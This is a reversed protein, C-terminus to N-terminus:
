PLYHNITGNPYDTCSSWNKMDCSFCLSSGTVCRMRGCVAKDLNRSYTFLHFDSDFYESSASGKLCNTLASTATKQGGPFVLTGTEKLPINYTLSPFDWISSYSPNSLNSSVKYQIMSYITGGDGPPKQEM